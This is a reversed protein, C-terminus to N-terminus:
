RGEAKGRKQSTPAFLQGRRQWVVPWCGADRAGASFRRSGGGAADDGALWDQVEQPMDALIHLFEGDSDDHYKRHAAYAIEGNETLSLCVETDSNPFVRKALFSKDVLKYVMQSAAGKTVGRLKALETVNIDPKDGVIAITHIEAQPMPTDTSYCRACREFQMYKHITRENLRSLERYDHM